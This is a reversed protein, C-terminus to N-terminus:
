ANAAPPSTFIKKEYEEISKFLESFNGTHTHTHQEPPGHNPDDTSHAGLWMFFDLYGRNLLCACDREARKRVCGQRLRRLRAEAGGAGQGGRRQTTHAHACTRIHTHTYTRLYTLQCLSLVPVCFFVFTGVIRKMCVYICVFIFVCRTCGVRQIIELFLTPRDGM